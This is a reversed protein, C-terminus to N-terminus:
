IPAWTPFFDDSLRQLVEDQVVQELSEWSNMSRFTIDSIDFYVTEEKPLSYISEYVVQVAYGTNFRDRPQETITKFRIM